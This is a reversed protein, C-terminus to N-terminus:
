QGAELEEYVTRELTESISSWRWHRKRLDLGLYGRSLMAWDGLAYVPCLEVHKLTGQVDGRRNGLLWTPSLSVGTTSITPPSNM